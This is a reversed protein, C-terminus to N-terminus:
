GEPAGLPLRFDLLNQGDERRYRLDRALDHILFWGFGGEPLSEAAVATDPLGPPHLCRSPLPKGDDILSCSLGRGDCLISLSISGVRGPAYGHEVINNMLEALLLELAGAEGESIHPAFRAMVAHLVKRVAHQEAPFVSQFVGTCRGQQPASRNKPLSM